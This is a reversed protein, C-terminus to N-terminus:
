EKGVIDGVARRLAEDTSYERKWGLRNSKTIDFRVQPVNGRCGCNAGTHRFQVGALCGAELILNAITPICLSIPLM